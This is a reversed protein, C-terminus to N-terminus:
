INGKVVMIKNVREPLLRSRYSTIQQAAESFLSESPVSSAPIAMTYIQACYFLAPHRLSGELRM